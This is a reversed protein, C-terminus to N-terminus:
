KGREESYDAKLDGYYDLVCKPEPRGFHFGKCELSITTDDDDLLEEMIFTIDDRGAYITFIRVNM